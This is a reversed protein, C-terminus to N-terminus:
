PYLRTHITRKLSGRRVNHKLNTLSMTCSDHIRRLWKLACGNIKLNDLVYVLRYPGINVTEGHVGQIGPIYKLMHLMVVCTRKITREIIYKPLGSM